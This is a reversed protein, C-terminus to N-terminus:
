PLEEEGKILMAYRQGCEIRENLLMLILHLPFVLLGPTDKRYLVRLVVAKAYPKSLTNPYSFPAVIPTSFRLDSVQKVKEISM